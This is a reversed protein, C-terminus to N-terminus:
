GVAFSWSHISQCRVPSWDMWGDDMKGDCEVEECPAEIDEIHECCGIHLRFEEGGAEAIGGGKEVDATETEEEEAGTEDGGNWGDHCAVDLEDTHDLLITTWPLLVGTALLLVGHNWSDLDSDCVSQNVVGDEQGVQVAPIDSSVGGSLDVWTSDRRVGVHQDTGSQHSRKQATCLSTSCKDVVMTNAQIQSSLACLLDVPLWSHLAQNISNLFLRIGCDLTGVAKRDTPPIQSNSKLAFAHAPPIRSLRFLRNIRNYIFLHSFPPCELM